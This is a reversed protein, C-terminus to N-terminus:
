GCGEFEPVTEVLKLGSKGFWQHLLRAATGDQYMLTIAKNVAECGDIDGRRLGVGYREDSFPANVIKVDGKAAFGALVLDGTSVADVQGNLLKRYCESYSPSKVLRAAVGLGNVVRSTSVSGAAECMRRGALDRASAIRTETKRVMIDQHALYYPGGFTVKKAREATISYSALVIDVKHRDLLRERDDSTVERFTVKSAGMQRAIYRGADVEFGRFTGDPGRLGLGPQDAKVGVVITKRESASSTATCGALATALLAAAAATRPHGTLV